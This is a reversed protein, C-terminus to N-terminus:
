SRGYVTFLVPVRGIESTLGSIAWDTSRNPVVHSYQTGYSKKCHKEIQLYFEIFLDISKLDQKFFVIIRTTNQDILIKDNIDFLIYILQNNIKM